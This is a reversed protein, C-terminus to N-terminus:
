LREVGAGTKVWKGQDCDYHKIIRAPVGAAVSFDPVDRSVVSNAGIMCHRGITVGPLIVAGIGIFTGEGIRVPTEQASLRHGIKTPDHIDEYPHNMDVVVCRAGLSVNAGIEIGSRCVIHVDQEINVHNGISLRPKAESVPKLVELRVGSRILVSKGICIFRVHSLFMPPYLTTGSGIAGFQPRYYIWTVARHYLYRLRNISDIM